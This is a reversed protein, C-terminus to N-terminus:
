NKETPVAPVYGLSRGDGVAPEYAPAYRIALATGTSIRKTVSIKEEFADKGDIIKRVLLNKRIKIQELPTDQHGREIYRTETTEDITDQNDIVVDIIAHADLRRAEAMLDGYSITDGTWHYEGDEGIAYTSNATLQIIGVATFDKLRYVEPGTLGWGTVAGKWNSGARLEVDNAVSASYPGIDYIAKDTPPIKLIMKATTIAAPIEVKIEEHYQITPTGSITVLLQQQQRQQQAGEEEDEEDEEVPRAEEAVVAKLGTPIGPFWSTIDTDRELTNSLIAGGFKITFTKPEIERTVAGGIVIDAMNVGYVEFRRDENIPVNFDWARNTVEYPVQIKIPQNITEQPKGEITVVIETAGKEVAYKAKLDPAYVKAKLGKPINKFWPTVDGLDPFSSSARHANEIPVQISTDVLKIVVDTPTIKTGLPGGIFKTSDSRVWKEKEVGAFRSEAAFDIDADVIDILPFGVDGAVPATSCGSFSLAIVAIAAATFVILKKM